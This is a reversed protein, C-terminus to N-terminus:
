HTNLNSPLLHSKKLCLCVSIQFVFVFIWRSVAQQQKYALQEEIKKRSTDANAKPPFFLKASFHAIAMKLMALTETITSIQALEPLQHQM